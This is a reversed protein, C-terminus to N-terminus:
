FPIYKNVNDHINLKGEEQLQLIAVAVSSKTISGIWFKTNPNNPTQNKFNAYGYGKNLLIKGDKVVLASGNFKGDQLTKNMEKAVAEEEAKQSVQTTQPTSFSGQNRENAHYQPKPRFSNWLFYGSVVFVLVVLLLMIRRKM